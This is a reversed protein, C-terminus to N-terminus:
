KRLPNTSGIFMKFRSLCGYYHLLDGLNGHISECESHSEYFLRTTLSSEAESIVASVEMMKHEEIESMFM